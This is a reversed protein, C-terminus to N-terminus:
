TFLNYAMYLSLRVRAQDLEYRCSAQQFAFEKHKLELIKTTKNEVSDFIIQHM